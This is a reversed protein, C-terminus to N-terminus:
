AEPEKAGNRGLALMAILHPWLWGAVQRRLAFYVFPALFVVGILRGWLRHSFELWFISKFDGLTMGANIKRYEPTERYKAFLAQWDAEARM